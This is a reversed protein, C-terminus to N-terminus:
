GGIVMVLGLVILVVATVQHAHNELWTGEAVQYGGWLAILSLGAITLITVLAFVVVVAVATPGNVALAGVFVPLVSVDPSAAIGTSILWASRRSSHSHAQHTPAQDYHADHDHTHHRRSHGRTRIGFAVGTVVLVAGVLPVDWRLIGKVGYGVVLVLGALVVTGLVHGVGTGLAIRLTRTRSWRQARAVLAIPMWHDPLVAHIFAVTGAALLLAWTTASGM